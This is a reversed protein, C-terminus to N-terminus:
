AILFRQRDDQLALATLRGTVYAGTDVGIRWGLPEPADTITHGHVIVPPAPRPHSLFEDRIWMLDAPDQRDLAIGPRIGAHVFLYDGIAHSLVTKELFARHAEPLREALSGALAQCRKADTTEPSAIIGYSALTEAGGFRLWQRAELPERLFGLMADEHNGRLFVQVDGPLNGSSLLDLVARSEAGRDVYDGLFVLTVHRGQGQTAIDTAMLDLLRRLPTTEGHIDGIAYVLRGEPVRAVIPTTETEGFRWLRRWWGSSFVMGAKDREGPAMEHCDSM